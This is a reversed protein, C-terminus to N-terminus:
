IASKRGGALSYVVNIVFLVQVALVALVIYIFFKVLFSASGDDKGYALFDISRMIPIELLTKGGVLTILAFYGWFLFGNMFLDGPMLRPKGMRRRVYLGISM